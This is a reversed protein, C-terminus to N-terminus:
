QKPYKEKAGFFRTERGRQYSDHMGRYDPSAFPRRGRIAHRYSYEMENKIMSALRGERGFISQFFRSNIVSAVLFTVVAILLIYEVATQGRENKVHHNFTKNRNRGM